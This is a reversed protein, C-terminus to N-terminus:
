HLLWGVVLIIPLVIFFFGFLHIIAVDIQRNYEKDFSPQLM